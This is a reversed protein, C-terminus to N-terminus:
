IAALARKGNALMIKRGPHTSKSATSWRVSTGKALQAHPNRENVAVISPLEKQKKQFHYRADYKWDGVM